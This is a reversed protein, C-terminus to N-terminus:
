KLFWEKVEKWTGEVLPQEFKNERGYVQAQGNDCVHGSKPVVCYVVSGTELDCIRFDDYLTGNFPCINKFFVYTKDNDFKSSNKIANLRGLLRLGKNKLSTEKCFWDYWLGEVNLNGAKWKNLTETITMEKEM